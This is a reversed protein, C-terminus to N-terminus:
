KEPAAGPGAALVERGFGMRRVWPEPAELSEWAGVPISICWITRSWSQCWPWWSGGQEFYLTLHTNGGPFKIVGHSM